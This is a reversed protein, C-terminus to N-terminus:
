TLSRSDFILYEGFTQKVKSFEGCDTSYAKCLNHFSIRDGLLDNIRSVNLQLEISPFNVNAIIRRQEVSAAVSNFMKTATGLIEIIGFRCYQSRISFSQIRSTRKFNTQIIKTDHCCSM